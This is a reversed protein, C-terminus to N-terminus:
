TRLAPPKPRPEAAMPPLDPVESRLRHLEDRLLAVEQELSKEREMYRTLVVSYHLVIAGLFVFCVLSALAGADIELAKALGVFVSGPLLVIVLMALGTCIWLVAYEDRLRRKRVLGVTSALITLGIALLFLRQLWNM